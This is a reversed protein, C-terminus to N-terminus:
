YQMKEDLFSNNEITYYADCASLFVSMHENIKNQVNAYTGWQM